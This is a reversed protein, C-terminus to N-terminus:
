LEAGFEVSKKGIGLQYKAGHMGFADSSYSLQKYTKRALEHCLVSHM